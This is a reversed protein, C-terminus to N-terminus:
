AVRDFGLNLFYVPFVELIVVTICILSKATINPPYEAHRAYSGELFAKLDTRFSSAQESSGGKMSISNLFAQSSLCLFLLQFCNELKFLTLKDTLSGSSLEESPSLLHNLHTLLHSISPLFLPEEKLFTELTKPYDSLLMCTMLLISQFSFNDRYLHGVNKFLLKYISFGCMQNATKFFTVLFSKCNTTNIKSLRDIFETFISAKEEIGAKELTKLLDSSSASILKARNFFTTLLFDTDEQVAKDTGVKLTISASNWLDIMSLFLPFRTLLGRMEKTQAKNQKPKIYENWLYHFLLKLERLIEEQMLLIYVKELNRNELLEMVLELVGFLKLMIPKSLVEGWEDWSAQRVMQGLEKLGYTLDQLNTGMELGKGLMMLCYEIEKENSYRKVKTGTEKLLLEELNTESLNKKLKPIISTMSHDKAVEDMLRKHLELISKDNSGPALKSIQVLADAYEGMKELCQALSFRAKEYSQDKEVAQKFYEVARDYKKLNFTAIGANRLLISSERDINIKEEELIKPDTSQVLSLAELYVKEAEDYKKEELIYKKGQEKYLTLKDM